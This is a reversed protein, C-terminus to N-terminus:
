SLLNKGNIDLWEILKPYDPVYGRILNWFNYSHGKIKFHCLEHIIIYDIIEPPAKILNINLNIENNKTISAWRNKLNKIVVKNAKVGIVKSLIHVKEKFIIKAKHYLWNEYLIKIEENSEQNGQISPQINFVFVGNKYKVSNKEVKRDNEKQSDLIKIQIKRNKGLYPLSSDKSYLPKSIEIKKGSDSIEKQKMLIWSIKEKMLSEIETLPKSYPVRIVIEDSDVIIESTKRRRTRFVFYEVKRTGHLYEHKSTIASKKSYLNVLSSNQNSVSTM